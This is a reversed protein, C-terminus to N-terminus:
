AGPAPLAVLRVRGGATANEAIVLSLGSADLDVLHDTGLIRGFSASGRRLYAAESAGVVAGATSAGVALPTVAGPLAVATAGIQLGGSCAALFSTGSACLDSTAGLGAAAAAPTGGALAVSSVRTGGQDALWVRDTAVAILTADDVAATVRPFSIPPPPDTAGPDDPLALTVLRAGAGDIWFAAGAGAAVARPAQTSSRSLVTPAASSAAVHNITREVTDIYLCGTGYPALSPITGATAAVVAPAGPTLPVALVRSGAGARETVYAHSGSIVVHELTGLGAALTTTQVPIGGGGACGALLLSALASALWLHPVLRRM